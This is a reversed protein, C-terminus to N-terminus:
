KITKRYDAPLQGTVDKFVKSFYKSDNYGVRQAIEYLKMSTGVLLEKAKSIRYNKMYNSFTVGTEKHFQTGLYEPTINLKGAIEDLTIGTNYFEHILRKARKITLNTSESETGDSELASSVMRCIDKLETRTKANMIQELLKQQKIDSAKSIGINKAIELVAWIFRVYCEKIERPLYVKGDGFTDVFKDMLLKVKSYDAACIAAKIQTELDQPYVCLGTQVHTIKPYSILISDQFTINWDMYPFLKEACPKINDIGEAEVFGMVSHDSLNSLLQYQIWRELDAGSKYKYVIIALSKKYEEEIISFSIDPYTSLSGTIRRIENEWESEYAAGLYAYLLVFRSKKDIGFRGSLYEGVEDSVEMRGGLIERFTQELTGIEEPKKRKDEAIQLRITEIARSLDNLSIPKLLYETVGLKMAGRAYEFESYASLVIAKVHIGEEFISRLMELGDMQPMQVDTIILDPRLQRCMDLGEAGDEAEGVVIYDPDIKGLLKRIGERIRIEDEVILIKMKRSVGFGV